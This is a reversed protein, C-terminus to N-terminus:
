ECGMPQSVDSNYVHPLIIGGNKEMMDLEILYLLPFWVKEVTFHLQEPIIFPLMM